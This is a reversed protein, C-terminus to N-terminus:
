VIEIGYERRNPLQEGRANGSAGFQIPKWGVPAGAAPTGHDMFYHHVWASGNWSGLCVNGNRWALRVECWQPPMLYRVVFWPRGDDPNKVANAAHIAAM